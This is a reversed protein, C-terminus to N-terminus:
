AGARPPGCLDDALEELTYYHVDPQPPNRMPPTAGWNGGEALRQRDIWVCALGAARAPAIDHHLSQAVHLIEDRRIDLMARAQRLMHRFNAPDPKYSGIQEATWVADFRAGLKPLSAEIGALHVNSLIALRCRKKLRRLAQATDAFAPWCAISDAFTKDLGPTTVLGWRRALRQHTRALVDDYRATPQEREVLGEIEGYDALARARSVPARGDNALFLRQLADWIGTEWDILTGYCDFTLLRYRSFDM